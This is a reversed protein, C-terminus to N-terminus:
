AVLLAYDSIFGFKDAALDSRISILDQQVGKLNETVLEMKVGLGNKIMDKRWALERGQLPGMASRNKRIMCEFVDDAANMCKRLNMDIQEVSRGMSEPLIDLDNMLKQLM